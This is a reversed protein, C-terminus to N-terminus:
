GWGLYVALAYYMEANPARTDQHGSIFIKLLTRKKEPSLTSLALFSTGVRAPDVSSVDISIAQTVDFKNGGM